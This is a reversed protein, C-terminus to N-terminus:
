FMHENTKQVHFMKLTYLFTFFICRFSKIDKRRLLFLCLVHLFTFSNGPLKSENEVDNGGYRGYSEATSKKTCRM